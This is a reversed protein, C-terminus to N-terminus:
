LQNLTTARKYQREFHREQNEQKLVLNYFVVINFIMEVLYVGILYNNDVPKDILGEEFNFRMLLYYLTRTGM